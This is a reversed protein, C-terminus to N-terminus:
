FHTTFYDRKRGDVLTLLYTRTYYNVLIGFDNVNWCVIEIYGVSRVNYLNCLCPVDGVCPM